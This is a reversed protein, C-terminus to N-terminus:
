RAMGAPRMMFWEFAALSLEWRSRLEVPIASYQEASLLRRVRPWQDYVWRETLVLAKHWENRVESGELDARHEIVVTALKSYVSDRYRLYERKMTQLSDVQDERLQVQTRRSLIFDFTTFSTGALRNRIEQDSPNESRDPGKFYNLLHETERDPGVYFRADMSISFPTTSRLTKSAGGFSQNVTYLFRNRSPDFGRVYLLTQDFFPSPGWGKLNSRGNILRDLGGLVNTALIQVAGRNGLRLRMPDPSISMNLMGSWPGRCSNAQAVNEMQRRLCSVTSSPARALLSSMGAALASDPSKAPDFVFARDNASGDGNIDSAVRPTIAVGSALRASLAFNAWRPVNLSMGTQVAHRSVASAAREVVRPDGATTGGFGRIDSRGGSFSYTIFERWIPRGTVSAQIPSDAVHATVQWFNSGLDSRSRAVTGFQPFQRSDSLTLAGSSPVIATPRVFVPRGGEAGTVFQPAPILNADVSSPLHSNEAFTASFGAPFRNTLLGSLGIVSRWSRSPEFGDSFTVVNPRNASLSTGGADNCARPISGTSALYAPWDPTPVAAGVCTIQQVDTATGDYRLADIVNSPSLAGRYERIGGFLSGRSSPSSTPTRRISGVGKTLGIMPVISVSSPLRDTPIHFADDVALNRAPRPRFSNAELRVGYQVQLKGIKQTNVDPSYVDGLGLAGSFGRARFQGSGLIRSFARPANREFAGLSDYTFTGFGDGFSVTESNVIGDLSLKFLHRLDWTYWATQNKIQFSWDSTRNPGSGGGGAVVSSTGLTGDSLVSTLFVSSGPLALRSTTERSSAGLSVNLENLISGFLFSSSSATAGANWASSHGGVTTTARPGGMADSRSAAGNVLLSLQNDSPSFPIEATETAPRPSPRYDFRAIGNASRTSQTSGNAAGIPVGFGSLIGVLRSVSDPSLSQSLLQAPSAGILSAVDQTRSELQYSTNFFRTRSIPGRATGSLIHQQYKAGSLAGPLSQLFPADLSYHVTRDRDESGSPFRLSVLAGAFGGVAADYTAPIAELRFGDRPLGLGTGEPGAGGTVNMGNLTLLNQGGPVGFASLGNQSATMWPLMGLAASIDGRLDGALGDSRDVSNATALRGSQGPGFDGQQDLRAPRPRQARTKVPALVQPSAALRFDVILPDGNAARTVDRRQLAFGQRTVTVVYRGSASALSISYTGASDSLTRQSASDPISIAAVTAGRVPAGDPGIVKGQIRQAAATRSSLLCALLQVAAGGHNGRLFM